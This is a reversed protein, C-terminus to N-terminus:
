DDHPVALGQRRHWDDLKGCRKQSKWRFPIMCLHWACSKAIMAFCSKQWKWLRLIQEMAGYPLLQLATNSRHGTKFHLKDLLKQKMAQSPSMSKPEFETGKMDFVPLGKAFVRHQAENIM